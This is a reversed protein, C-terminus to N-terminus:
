NGTNEPVIKLIEDLRDLSARAEQYQQAVEGFSSLPSFIFFSYFLLSFFEGFTIGGTFILWLMLFMLGSRLANIVTGQIFSFTRIIKIKKLELELIQANTDNLRKIEQNELGLSKVLEVNRLTETTAGALSATQNIINVQAAKIKRSILYTTGGLLPIMFSYVLGVTWHVYFAYVIVFLVGILSFFLINAISTIFTQAELQAQQLNQSSVPPRQDPFVAYPLSFSHAVSHAYMQTGVKQVVVNLYYDQFNKAIRSVLAVGVTGLLLLLVGRLFDLSSLENIRTIYKDVIIRFIQPDLLSFVQNITALVLTGGLIKKYRRLYNWLLKM